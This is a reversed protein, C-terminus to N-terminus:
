FCGALAQPESPMLYHGVQLPEPLASRRHTLIRGHLKVIQQEGGGQHGTRGKDLGRGRRLGNRGVIDQRVDIWEHACTADPRLHRGDRGRRGRRKAHRQNTRIGSM